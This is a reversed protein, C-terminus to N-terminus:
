GNAKSIELDKLAEMVLARLANKMTAVLKSNNWNYDFHMQKGSASTAGYGYNITNSPSLELNHTYKYYDYGQKTQIQLSFSPISSLVQFKVNKFGLENIEKSAEEVVKLFLLKVEKKRENKLKTDQGVLQARQILDQFM